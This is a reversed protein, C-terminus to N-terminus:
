YGDYGYLLFGLVPAKANLWRRFNGEVETESTSGFVDDITATGTDRVYRYYSERIGYKQMVDTYQSSYFVAGAASDIGVIDSMDITTLLSLILTGYNGDILAAANTGNIKSLIESTLGTLFGAHKALREADGCQVFANAIDAAFADESQATGKAVYRIIAEWGSTTITNLRVLRVSLEQCIISVDGATAESFAGGEGFSRVYFEGCAYAIRVLECFANEGIQDSVTQAAELCEEVGKIEYVYRLLLLSFDYTLRCASDIGIIGTIGSLCRDFSEYWVKFDEGRFIMVVLTTIEDTMIEAKRVVSVFDRESINRGEFAESVHEQAFGAIEAREEDTLPDTVAEICKEAINGFVESAYNRNEQSYVIAPEEEDANADGDEGDTQGDSITDDTITIGQTGKDPDCACFAVSICILVTLILVPVLKKM